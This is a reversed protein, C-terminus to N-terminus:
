LSDRFLQRSSNNRFLNNLSTNDIKIGDKDYNSVNLRWSPFGLKSSMSNSLKVGLSKICLILDLLRIFTKLQFVLSSDGTLRLTGFADCMSIILINTTRRNIPNICLTVIRIFINIM